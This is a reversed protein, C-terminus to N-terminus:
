SGSEPAGFQAHLARAQREMSAKAEDLVDLVESLTALGERNWAETVDKADAHEPLVIFDEKSYGAVPNAPDGVIVQVMLKM